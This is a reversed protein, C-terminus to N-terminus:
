ERKIIVQGCHLFKKYPLHIASIRLLEVFYEKNVM